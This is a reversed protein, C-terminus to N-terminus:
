KILSLNLKTGSQTLKLKIDKKGLAFIANSRYLKDNQKIEVQIAAEGKPLSFNGEKKNEKLEGITSANCIVRTDTLGSLTGEERVIYLNRM